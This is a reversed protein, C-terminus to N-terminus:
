QQPSEPLPPLMMWLYVEDLGFSTGDHLDLWDDIVQGAVYEGHKSVASIYAGKEPMRESCIIWGDPIVPSSGAFGPMDPGKRIAKALELPDDYLWDGTLPHNAEALQAAWELGDKQGQLYYLALEDHNSVPEVGQLMAARCANWMDAAICCAYEDPNTTPLIGKIVEYDPEIAPPVVPASQEKGVLRTIESELLSGLVTSTCHEAWENNELLGIINLVDNYVGTEQVPQATYFYPRITWKKNWFDRTKEAEELTAVSCGVKGCEKIVHYGAPEAELSALARKLVILVKADDDSLGFPIDDRTNEFEAITQQLWEKTITTM